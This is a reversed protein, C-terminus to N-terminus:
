KRQLKFFMMLNSQNKRRLLTKFILDDNLLQSEFLITLQSHTQLIMSMLRHTKFMLLRRLQLKLIYKKLNFRNWTLLLNVKRNIMLLSLNIEGKM